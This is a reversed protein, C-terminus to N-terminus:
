RGTWAEVAPQFPPLRQPEPIRQWRGSSPDFSLGDMAVDGFDFNGGRNGGWLLVKEGTWVAAHGVRAHNGSGDRCAQPENAAVDEIAGFAEYFACPTGKAQVIDSMELSEISCGRRIADLTTSVAEIGHGRLARSRRTMLM